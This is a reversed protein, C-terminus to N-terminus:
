ATLGAKAEHSLIDYIVPRTVGYKRALKSKPVGNAAAERVEEQQEQTLKPARGRYKGEAKARAIGERQRERILEREFQAFAGVVQFLLVQMPDMKAKFDLGEKIFCITVGKETMERVTQQLNELNRALRDISHVYLTDGERLYRKCEAWGPRDISWGSVKDEFVKDLEVGDLQRGTNQDATSVRVYGIKQGAM